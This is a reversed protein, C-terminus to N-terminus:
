FKDVLNSHPFSFRFTSGLNPQSDVEISANHLEAIRKAIPLGLGAGGVQTSRATDVRYFHQFIKAQEETTIGIGQDIIEVMQ